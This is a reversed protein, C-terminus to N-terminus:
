NIGTQAESGTMYRHFIVYLMITPLLTITTAAMSRTVEEIYQTNTIQFIGLPLTFKDTSYVIISPLIFSNWNWVFIFIAQTLLASKSLPLVIRLFTGFNGLGDMKASEEIEKAFGMYFQRMLFVGFPNILFPIILGFYSNVMGFRSVQLFIPIMLIQMPVMMTGLVYYFLLKNGRFRFRALAYGAMSNLLLNAVTIIVVVFVSNLTWRLVQSRTFIYVFNGFGYRDPPLLGENLDFDSLVFSAHLSWLFPMVALLGLSGIVLYIFFNGKKVNLRM